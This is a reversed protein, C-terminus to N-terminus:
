ERELLPAQEALLDAFRRAAPSFRGRAYAALARTIPPDPECILAPLDPPVINAPLLAVGVGAAAVRAAAETQSTRLVVTPHRLGAHVLHGEVLETLGNDRALMVWSRDRLHGVALRGVSRPAAPPPGDDYQEVFVAVPDDVAAVIVFRERGLEVLEGSWPDPRPGVAVDALGRLLHSELSRRHAFEELTLTIGAWRRTWEALAPPLLGVALSLVTALELNGTRGSAVEVVSEKAQRAARLAVVADRRFAHGEATLRVGHPLREVLPAGVDRELARVQQSLASQTVHLRDAARTFSQQEVVTLLYEM